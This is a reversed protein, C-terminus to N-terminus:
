CHTYSNLNKRRRSRRHSPLLCPDRLPVHKIFSMNVIVVELARPSYQSHVECIDRLRLFVAGWTLFYETMQGMRV